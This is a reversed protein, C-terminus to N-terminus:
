ARAVLCIEANALSFVEFSDDIRSWVGGTGTSPLKNADGSRAAVGRRVRFGAHSRRVGGLSRPSRGYRVVPLAAFHFRGCM